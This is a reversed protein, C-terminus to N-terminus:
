IFNIPRNYSYITSQSLWISFESFYDSTPYNTSMTKINTKTCPAYAHNVYHWGFFSSNFNHFANSLENRVALEVAILLNSLASFLNGLITQITFHKETLARSLRELIKHLKFNSHRCMDFINLNSPTHAHTHTHTHKNHEHWKVGFAVFNSRTLLSFNAALCFNLFWRLLSLFSLFFQIYM